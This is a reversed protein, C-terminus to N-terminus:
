VSHIKKKMNSKKNLFSFFFFLFLFGKICKEERKKDDYVILDFGMPVMYGRGNIRERGSIYAIMQEQPGVNITTGNRALKVSRTWIYIPFRKTMEVEGKKSDSSFSFPTLSVCSFSRLPPAVINPDFIYSWWLKGRRDVCDNSSLWQIQTIDGGTYIRMLPTYVVEM